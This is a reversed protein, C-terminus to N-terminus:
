QVAQRHSKWSWIICSCLDDVRVRVLIQVAELVLRQEQRKCLLDRVVQRAGSVGLAEGAHRQPAHLVEVVLCVRDVVGHALQRERLLLGGINNLHTDSGGMGMM